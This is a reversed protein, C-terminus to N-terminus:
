SGGVSTHIVQRLTQNTFHVFPQPGFTVGPPPNVPPAPATAARCESAMFPAPGPPAPMPPNQPRGYTATAWTTVWKAGRPQAGLPTGLTGLAVVVMLARRAIRVAM